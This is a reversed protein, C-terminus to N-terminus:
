LVMAWDAIVAKLAVPYVAARNCQNGYNCELRQTEWETDQGRVGEGSRYSRGEAHDLPGNKASRWVLRM